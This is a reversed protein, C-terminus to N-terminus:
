PRQRDHGGRHDRLDAVRQRIRSDMQPNTYGNNDRSFLLGIVAGVAVAAVLVLLVRYAITALTM